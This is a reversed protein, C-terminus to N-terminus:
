SGRCQVYGYVMPAALAVVAQPATKALDLGLMTEAIVALGALLWLCGAFTHIQNWVADSEVSSFPLALRAERPCDLMHSGLLLLALGLIAPLLFALPLPSEFGATEMMMGGCFLVSIVPMGWRGVLRIVPPPLTQRRQNIKLQMHAIFNLLCMLAPLGYVVMWRPLSDDTGDTGILGSPVVEPIQDWLRLGMLIPLACAIMAAALLTNGKRESVQRGFLRAGQIEREREERTKQKRKSMPAIEEKPRM